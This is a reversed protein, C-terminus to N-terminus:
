ENKEGDLRVDMLILLEKLEIVQEDNPNDEIFKILEKQSAVGFYDLVSKKYTM